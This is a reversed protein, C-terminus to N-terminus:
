QARLLLRQLKSARACREPFSLITFRLGAGFCGAFFAGLKFCQLDIQALAKPAFGLYAAVFVAPANRKGIGAAFFQVHQKGLKTDGQWFLLVIGPIFVFGM